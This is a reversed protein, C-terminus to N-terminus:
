TVGRVQALVKTVGDPRTITTPQPAPSSCGSAVVAASALALLVKM